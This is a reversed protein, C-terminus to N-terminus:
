RLWHSPVDWVPRGSEVMAQSRTLGIDTLMRDDLQALHRRQRVLGLLDWLGKRPAPCPRARTFATVFVVSTNAAREPM